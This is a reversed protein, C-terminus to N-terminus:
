SGSVKLSHLFQAISFLAARFHHTVFLLAQWKKELFPPKIWPPVPHFVYHGPNSNLM